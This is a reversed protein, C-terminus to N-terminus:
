PLACAWECVCLEATVTNTHQRCRGPRGLWTLFTLTYLWAAFLHVPALSGPRPLAPDRPKGSRDGGWVHLLLLWVRSLSEMSMCSEPNKEWSSQYAMMCNRQPGGALQEGGGGRSPATYLRFCIKSHLRKDCLLTDSLLISWKNQVRSKSALQKCTM